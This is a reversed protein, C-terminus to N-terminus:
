REHSHYWKDFTLKLIENSIDLYWIIKCLQLKRRWSKNDTLTKAILVGGQFVSVGRKSFM